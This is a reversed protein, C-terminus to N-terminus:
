GAPALAPDQGRTIQKGAAKLDGPDYKYISQPSGSTARCGGIMAVLDAGSWSLDCLELGPPQAGAPKGEANLLTISYPDPIAKRTLVALAGDKRAAVSLVDGEMVPASDLAWSNAATGGPQKATFRVLETWSKRSKDSVKRRLAYLTTEGGWAPRGYNYDDDDWCTPQGGGPAMLCLRGGFGSGNDDILAMTGDPGVAPSGYRHDRDTLRKDSDPSAPDVSRIESKTASRAHVYVVRGDATWAPDRNTSDEGGAIAKEGKGPDMAFIQKGNGYALAVKLDGTAPV